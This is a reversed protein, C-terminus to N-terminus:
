RLTDCRNRDGARRGARVFDAVEKRTGDSATRVDKLSLARLEAHESLMKKFDKNLGELEDIVHAWINDGYLRKWLMLAQGPRFGHSQVWEQLEGYNMGKLLVKSGKPLNQHIEGRGFELLHDNQPLSLLPSASSCCSPTSISISRRGHSSSALSILNPPKLCTFSFLPHRSAYRLAPSAPSPFAM